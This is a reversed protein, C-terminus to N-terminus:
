RAQSPRDPRGDGPNTSSALQARLDGPEPAPGEPLGEGSEFLERAMGASMPAPVGPGDAADHAHESADAVSPIGPEDPEVADRGDERAHEDRWRDRGERIAHCLGWLSGLGALEPYDVRVGRREGEAREYRFLGVPDDPKFSITVDRGNFQDARRADDIIHSFMCGSIDNGHLRTGSPVVVLCRWLRDGRSNEWQSGDERRLPEVRRVFEAPVSVRPWRVVERPAADRGTAGTGEEM